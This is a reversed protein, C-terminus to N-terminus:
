RRSVPKYPYLSEVSQPRTRYGEIPQNIAQVLPRALVSQDSTYAAKYSSLDLAMTFCLIILYASQPTVLLLRSYPLLPMRHM